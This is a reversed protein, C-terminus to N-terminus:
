VVVAVAVVVVVVVVVAAAVAVVVVVVVVVLVLLLLEDLWWECSAIKQINRTWKVLISKRIWEIRFKLRTTDGNYCVVSRISVDSM